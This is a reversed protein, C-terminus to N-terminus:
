IEDDPPVFSNNAAEYSNMRKITGKYDIKKHVPKDNDFKENNINQYKFLNKTYKGKFKDKPFDAKKTDSRKFNINNILNTPSSKFM